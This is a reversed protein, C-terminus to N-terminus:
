ENEDYVFSNSKSPFYLQFRAGGGPRNMVEVTGQLADVFGKVISLGLGTGGTKANDARFFKDFVRKLDHQQFGPGDDEIQVRFGERQPIINILITTSEPTHQLGNRIINTLIQELMFRDIWFLPVSETQSFNLNRNGQESKLKIVLANIIENLDCWDPKPKLVGAEIRGMNLLNEVQQNLRIAAVDIEEILEDKIEESLEKSSKITDVAGIVTALPTRLEHSLSNLITNYLKITKEKEERDRARKEFERIKYTLVANISAILFYMLFMLADEPTGIHLTYTPPIFFFNWIVASLMAAALVPYIDLLMALVSVLVMLILAVVQYGIVHSLFYCGISTAIVLGFSLLYQNVKLLRM